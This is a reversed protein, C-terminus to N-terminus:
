IKVIHMRGSIFMFIECFLHLYFEKGCLFRYFNANFYVLNVLDLLVDFIQSGLSVLFLLM